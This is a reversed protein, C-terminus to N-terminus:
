DLPKEYVEEFPYDDEEEEREDDTDDIGTDLGNINAPYGGDNHIM